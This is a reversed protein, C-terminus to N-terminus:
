LARKGLAPEASHLELAVGQHRPLATAGGYQGVLVQAPGEAGLLEPARLRRRPLLQSEGPFVPRGPALVERRMERYPRAAPCVRSAFRRQNWFDIPVSKCNGQARQVLQIPCRDHRLQTGKLLWSM